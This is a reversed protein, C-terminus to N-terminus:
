IAYCATVIYSTLINLSKETESAVETESPILSNNATFLTAAMFM